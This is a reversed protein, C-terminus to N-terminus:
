DLFIAVSNLIEQGAPTLEGYRKVVDYAMNLQELVRTLLTGIESKGSPDLKEFFYCLRALVYMQHFVGMMPRRDPRLPSDYRENEDNLVMPIAAMAANLRVHSAEHIIEEAVEPISADRLREYHLFVSGHYRFDTFGIVEKGKFLIMKRIFDQAEEYMEPWIAQVLQFATKIVAVIQEDPTVATLDLATGFINGAMEGRRLSHAVGIDYIDMDVAMGVADASQVARESSRFVKEPLSEFDDLHKEIELFDNNKVLRVFKFYWHFSEPHLILPYNHMKKDCLQRIVGAIQQNHRFSVQDTLTLIAKKTRDALLLQDNETNIALPQWSQM